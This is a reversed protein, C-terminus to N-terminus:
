HLARTRVLMALVLGLLLGYVVHGVLPMVALNPLPLGPGFGVNNLWLPWLFVINLAWLAVGFAVATGIGVHYAGVTERLPERDVAVGFLAGFLVSHALHAMWGVSLSPEGLTYMAGIATMRGLQFQILVGFVLGAVLGGIGGGLAMANRNQIPDTTDTSTSM